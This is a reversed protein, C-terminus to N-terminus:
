VVDVLRALSLVNQFVFCRLSVFTVHAMLLVSPWGGWKGEFAAPGTMAKALYKAHTSQHKSRVSLCGQRALWKIAVKVM